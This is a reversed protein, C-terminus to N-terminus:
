LVAACVHCLLALRVFRVVRTGGFGYQGPSIVYSPLEEEVVIVVVIVVFSLSLVAWM